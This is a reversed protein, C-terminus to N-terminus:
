LREAQLCHPLNLQEIIIGNILHQIWVNTAENSQSVTQIRVVKRMIEGGRMMM